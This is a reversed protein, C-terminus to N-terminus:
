LVTAEFLALLAASPVTVSASALAPTSMATGIALTFPLKTSLGPSLRFITQPSCVRVLTNLWDSKRTPFFWTLTLTGNSTIALSPSFSLKVTDTTYVSLDPLLEGANANIVPSFTVGGGGAGLMSMTLKSPKTLLFSIDSKNASEFPNTMLPWDVLVLPLTLKTNVM